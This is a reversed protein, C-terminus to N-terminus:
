RSSSRSRATTPAPTAGPSSCTRTPSTGTACTRRRTTTSASTSRAAAGQGAAGRVEPRGAGIFVPNGGLIVLLEVTGADMGDGARRALRGPGAARSRRRRRLDGDRRRQRAGPEDRARARAGGGASTAPSSWRAHRPAGPSGQRRRRGVRAQDGAIAARAARRRRGRRARPRLAEIESARMPLRHDAKAGTLTPMSEVAYLRNMTTRARRRRPPPRRLRPRLAGHGARLGPLRRRALPHRRGQRLPLRRAPRGAAQQAAPAPATRPCRTASTGSAGASVAELVTAM